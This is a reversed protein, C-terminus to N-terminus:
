KKLASIREIVKESAEKYEDHEQPIKGYADQISFPMGFTVRLRYRRLFFDKWSFGLLYKAPQFNEIFCPLIPVACQAALFSVGRRPKKHRGVRHIHGEPFMMIRGGKRLIKLSYALTRHLDGKKFIPYSGLAWMLPRKWTFYYDPWTPYYIPFFKKGFPFLHSVLFMDLYSAHNSIIIFSHTSIKEVNKRGSVTIRGFYRFFLRLPLWIILQTLCVASPIYLGEWASTDVNKLVNM